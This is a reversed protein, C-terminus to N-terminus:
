PATTSWRSCDGTEFGDVLLAAPLRQGFVGGDFGDQGWSDWVVVFNGSAEAAPFTSPLHWGSAAADQRAPEERPERNFQM